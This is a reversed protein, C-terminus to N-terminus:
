KKASNPKAFTKSVVQEEDKPKKYSEPFTELEIADLVDKNVAQKLWILCSEETLGINTNNYSYVGNRYKLVGKDVASVFLIRLRMDSGTYLDIVKNPNKTAEKLLFDLVEDYPLGNMKAGLLRAKIYIADKSDGFLYAQANHILQTKNNSTKSELAPREIYFEGAGYRNEDGDIVLKGNEDRQWREEAILPSHKIAEWQSRDHIDNLNFERGDFIDIVDLESIPELGTEEDKDSLDGDKYVIDGNSDVRRIHNPYRGTKPDICPNMKCKTIKFVSRIKIIKSDDTMM